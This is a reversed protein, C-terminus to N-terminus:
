GGTWRFFAQEAVGVKLLAEQLIARELGGDDGLAPRRPPPSLTAGIRGPPVAHGLVLGGRRVLVADVGPAVGLLKEGSIPCMQAADILDHVPYLRAARDLKHDPPVGPGPAAVIGVM